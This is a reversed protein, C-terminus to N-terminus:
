RLIHPEMTDAMENLFQDRSAQAMGGRYDALQDQGLFERIASYVHTLELEDLSLTAKKPGEFDM